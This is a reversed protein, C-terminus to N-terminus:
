TTFKHGCNPCEVPKKEDLKGQDELTGPEFEPVVTFDKIGLLDIDFPGLEPIDANIGSLDLEAWSSIANDSVAATYEQDEDDFDQYIVPVEKIGLEKAALLRGHGAVLYGSRNSIILPNRFGQYMIIKCLREIQEKSHNNRNKPNPKIKSVLEKEIKKAKIEM